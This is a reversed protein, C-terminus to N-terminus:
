MWPPCMAKIDKSGKEIFPEACIPCLANERYIIGGCTEDNTYVDNCFDCIVENAADITIIKM